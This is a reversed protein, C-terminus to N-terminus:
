PLLYQRAPGIPNRVNELNRLGGLENIRLQEAIERAVRGGNIETTTLTNLQDPLLKGSRLHSAIRSAFNVTQGM